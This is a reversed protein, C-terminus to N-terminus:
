FNSVRIGRSTARYGDETVTILRLRLLLRLSKDVEEATISFDKAVKAIRIENDQSILRLIQLQYMTLDSSEHSKGEFASASIPDMFHDEIIKLLEAEEQKDHAIKQAIKQLNECSFGRKGALFSSLNSVPVDLEKALSRLSYAPNEGKIRVLKNKVIKRLKEQANM